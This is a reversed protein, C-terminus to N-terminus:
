NRKPSLKTYGVGFVSFLSGFFLLRLINYFLHGKFHHQLLNKSYHVARRWFKYKYLASLIALAQKEIFLVTEPKLQDKLKLLRSNIIAKSPAKVVTNEIKNLHDRVLVTTDKYVVPKLRNVLITCHFLFDQGNKLTEDFVLQKTLLVEKKWLPADISWGIKKTIFDDLPTDSFLTDNWNQLEDKTESDFLVSQSITFHFNGKKIHELDTALKDKLMLDDSDFFNVYSGKAQTLGYNRCANAGKPKSAPRELFQFRNDKEVWESIVEKTNDTSGDDVILCEWQSYTQNQISALTEGIIHARNFTPIIISVLSNEM